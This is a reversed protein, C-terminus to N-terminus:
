LLTWRGRNSYCCKLSNLEDLQSLPQRRRLGKGPAWSPLRRFDRPLRRTRRSRRRARPKLSTRGPLFAFGGSLPALWFRLGGAEPPAVLPAASLSSPSGGPGPRRQGVLLSPRRFSPLPRPSASSPPRAPPPARAPPAGERSSLARPGAPQRQRGGSLPPLFFPPRAPPRRPAGSPIQGGSSASAAARSSGGGRKSSFPRALPLRTAPSRAACLRSPGPLRASAGLSLLLSARPRRLDTRGGSSSRPRGFQTAQPLSRSAASPPHAPPSVGPRAPPSVPPDRAERRRRGSGRERPPPHRGVSPSCLLNRTSIHLKAQM